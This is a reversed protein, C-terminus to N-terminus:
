KSRRKQFMADHPATLRRLADCRSLLSRVGRAGCAAISQGFMWKASEYFPSGVELSAAGGPFLLMNVSKLRRLLEAKDENYVLAVARAGASEVFKVYSAAIYSTDDADGPPGCVGKLCPESVVGILPSETYAFATATLMATYAFTRMASRCQLM